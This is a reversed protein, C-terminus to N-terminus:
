FYISTCNITVPSSIMPQTGFSCISIKLDGDVTLTRLGNPSLYCSCCEALEQDAKFVYINACLDGDVGDVLEAASYGGTSGPNVINLDAEVSFGMNANSYYGLYYADRSGESTTSQAFGTSALCTLVVTIALLGRIIQASGVSKWRKTLM